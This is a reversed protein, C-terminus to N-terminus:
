DNKYLRYWIKLSREGEFNKRVVRVSPKPKRRYPNNEQHAAPMLLKDCM